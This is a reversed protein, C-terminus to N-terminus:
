LPSLVPWGGNSFSVGDPDLLLDRLPGEDFPMPPPISDPHLWKYRDLLNTEDSNLDPRKLVTLDFHSDGVLVSCHYLRKNKLSQPMPQPWLQRIAELEEVYKAQAAREQEQSQEVKKGRRLDNIHRKLNRHLQGISDSEEHEIDLNKLVTRWSKLSIKSGYIATLIHLQFDAELKSGLWENHVDACHHSEFSKFFDAISASSPIDTDAIHLLSETSIHKNDADLIISFVAKSMDAASEFDQCLARCASRDPRPSLNADVVHDACAGTTIHHLLRRCQILTLGAHLIAYLDLSRRITPLDPKALELFPKLRPNVRIGALVVQSVSRMRDPHVATLSKIGKADGKLSNIEQPIRIESKYWRSWIDARYGPLLPYCFSSYSSSLAVWWETATPATKAVRGSKETQRPRRRDLSTNKLASIRRQIVRRTHWVTEPIPFTRDLRQRFGSLPQQLILVMLDGWFWMDFDAESKCDYERMHSEVATVIVEKFRDFILDHLPDRPHRANQGLFVANRLNFTRPKEALAASISQVYHRAKPAAPRSPM